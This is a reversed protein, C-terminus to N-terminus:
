GGINRLGWATGLKGDSRDDRHGGLYPGELSPTLCSPQINLTRSKQSWQDGCPEPLVGPGPPAGQFHAPEPLLPWHEPGHSEARGGHGPQGGTGPAAPSPSLLDLPHGTGPCPLARGIRGNREAWPETNSFCAPTPPSPRIQAMQPTLAPVYLFSSTPPYITLPLVSGGAPPTKLSQTSGVSTGWIGVWGRRSGLAGNVRRQAGTGM